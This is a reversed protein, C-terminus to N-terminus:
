LKLIVRITEIRIKLREIDRLCAEQGEKMQQVPLITQEHELREELRKLYDKIAKKNLM